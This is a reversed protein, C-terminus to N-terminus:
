FTVFNVNSSTLSAALRAWTLGGRFGIPHEAQSRQMVSTDAISM